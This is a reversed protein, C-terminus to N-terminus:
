VHARGIKGAIISESSGFKEAVPTNYKSFDVTDEPFGESKIRIVSGNTASAVAIIDLDISAAIVCGHNHDTHNGSIESRGSVSFLNIERDGGYLKEFEGIANIYRERAFAIKEKGYLGEFVSDLGGASINNKIEIANMTKVGQKFHM